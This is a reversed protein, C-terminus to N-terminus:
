RPLLRSLRAMVISHGQCRACRASNSGFIVGRFRGFIVSESSASVRRATLFVGNRQPSSGRGGKMGLERSTIGLRKKVRRLLSPSFRQERAGQRIEVEPVPGKALVGQVWLALQQRQWARPMASFVIPPVPQPLLGDQEAPVPDSTPAPREVKEPLREARVPAPVEHPPRPAPVRSPPPPPAAYRERM